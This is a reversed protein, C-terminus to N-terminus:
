YTSLQRLGSRATATQVDKRLSSIGTLLSYLIPYRLAFDLRPQTLYPTWEWTGANQRALHGFALALNTGCHGGRVGTQWRSLAPAVIPEMEAAMAAGFLRRMVTPMQLPRMASPLEADPRKPIWVLIYVSPGLVQVLRSPTM